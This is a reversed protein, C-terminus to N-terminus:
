KATDRKGPVGKYLIRDNKPIIEFVSARCRPDNLLGKFRVGARKDKLEWRIKVEGSCDGTYHVTVEPKATGITRMDEASLQRHPKRLSIRAIAVLEALESETLAYCPDGDYTMGTRCSCLLLPAACLVLILLNRM